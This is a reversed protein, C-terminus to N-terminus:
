AQRGHGIHEHEAVVGDAITPRRRERHRDLLELVLETM